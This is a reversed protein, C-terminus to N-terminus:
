TEGEIPEDSYLQRRRAELLDNERGLYEAASLVQVNRKEAAEYVDAIQEKWREDRLLHHEVVMTSVSTEEIMRLMGGTTPQKVSFIPGDLILVEPDKRLVFEVHEDLEAGMVDSTHVFTMDAETIAVETTFVRPHTGHHVAGSFVVHIAGLDFECGDSFHLEAAAPEIIPLIERARKEQNYNINRRPDKVLVRKGEFVHLGEPNIHDFHYHTVILVDSKKAYEEITRWHEEKRQLEIPHPPLGFRDPALNVGPDILINPGSTGVWTSM